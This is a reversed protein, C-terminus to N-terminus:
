VLNDDPSSLSPSTAPPPQIVLDFPKRCQLVGRCADWTAVTRGRYVYKIIECEGYQIRIKVLHPHWVLNALRTDRLFHYTKRFVKRFVKDLYHVGQKARAILFGVLGNLVPKYQRAHEATEVIGVVGSKPLPLADCDSNHDGRTTLVVGNVAVVRHVTYGGDPSPFVVVDGLKPEALVPRVYLLQGPRFTPLMSKGNYIFRRSLPQETEMNAIPETESLSKM